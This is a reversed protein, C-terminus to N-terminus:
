STLIFRGDLFEHMDRTFTINEQGPVPNVRQYHLCWCDTSANIGWGVIRYLTASKAHLWIEGEHDDPNKLDKADKHWYATMYTM